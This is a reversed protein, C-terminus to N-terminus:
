ISMSNAQRGTGTRLACEDKGWLLRTYKQSVANSTRVGQAINWSVRLVVPGSTRCLLGLNRPHVNQTNSTGNGKPSTCVEWVVLVSKCTFIKNTKSITTRNNRLWIRRGPLTERVFTNYIQGCSNRCKWTVSISTDNHKFEWQNQMFMEKALRTNKFQADRSYKVSTQCTQVTTTVMRVEVTCHKPKQHAHRTKSTGNGKHCPARRGTSNQLQHAINLVHASWNPM